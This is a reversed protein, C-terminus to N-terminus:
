NNKKANRHKSSLKVNLEGIKHTINEFDGIFYPLLKDNYVIKRLNMDIILEEFNYFEKSLIGKALFSYNDISSSFFACKYFLKRAFIAELAVGSENALVIDANNLDDWISGCESIKCGQIEKYKGKDRPHPRITVSYSLINLQKATEILTDLNDTENICILINKHNLNEISIVKKIADYFRIDFLLFTEVENNIRKYKELSDNSFLINLNHYLPPFHYGM